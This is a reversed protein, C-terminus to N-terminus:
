FEKDKKKIWKAQKLEDPLKLRIEKIIELIEEKDVLSKHTFPLGKSKELLDELEELLTFIEM